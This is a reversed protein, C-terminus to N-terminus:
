FYVLGKRSRRGSGLSFLGESFVSAFSVITRVEKWANIQDQNYIGPVHKLGGAQPAIITAEAILLTGPTTGRQSYYQKVVPLNPVHQKNARVRTLPALVIRHKLHMEGVTIPQFLRSSSHAM